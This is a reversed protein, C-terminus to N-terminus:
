LAAELPLALRRAGQVALAFRDHLTGPGLAGAAAAVGAADTGTILWVPQGSGDATAAILGAGPGLTGAVRGTPDLLELEGGGPAFRAYVGSAPPGHEILGRVPAAGLAMWPGVLVRVVGVGSAGHSVPHIGASRLAAAVRACAKAVAGACDLETVYRHGGVGHLFPEPFAGVVAPISEADRWDHFDWWVEDGQHLATTAAGAPAQIGNVYYFWDRQSGGALGNISQVFGGGYRTSVRFSRELMRMVTESGPLHAEQVSGVTVTGFQETVTLGAAGASRGAGLGCGATGAAAIVAALLTPAIGLRGWRM